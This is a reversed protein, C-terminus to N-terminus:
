PCMISSYIQQKDNIKLVTRLKRFNGDAFHKLLSVGTEYKELIFALAMEDTCNHRYKMERFEDVILGPFAPQYQNSVPIQKPNAIIFKAAAKADTIALAYVVGASTIVLRSKYNHNKNALEILGYLDGADPPTINAHNHLDTFANKIFPVTSSIKNGTSKASSIIKGSSDKGFAICQEKAGSKFVFQINKFSRIYASDKTFNALFAAIAKADDCPNPATPLNSGKSINSIAYNKEAISAAFCNIIVTFIIPYFNM